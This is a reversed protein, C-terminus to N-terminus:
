CSREFTNFSGMPISLSILTAKLFCYCVPTLIEQLFIFMDIVFTLLVGPMFM